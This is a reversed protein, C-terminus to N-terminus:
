LGKEQLTIAARMIAADSLGSEKTLREATADGRLTDLTSLTRRENERLEVM